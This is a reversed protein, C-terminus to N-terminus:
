VHASVRSQLAKQQPLPVSAACPVGGERSTHKPMSERMAHVREGVSTGPAGPTPSKMSPSFTVHTKACSPLERHQDRASSQGV